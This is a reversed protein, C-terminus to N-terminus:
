RVLRLTEFTNQLNMAGYGWGKNPFLVGEKQDSGLILMRRVDSGDMNIIMANLLGWEFLIAAAGAAHAASISSGSRNEYRGGPIPGFVGVGPAAM